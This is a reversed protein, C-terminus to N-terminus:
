PLGRPFGPVTTWLPAQQRPTPEEEVNIRELEPLLRMAVDLNYKADWFGSDLALAQRYAQKALALLPQADAIAMAETKVLAQELYLNGLSYRIQMQLVKDGNNIIANMAALAEEYRGQRKLQLARALKAAPPAAMIEAFSPERGQALKEIWRNAGRAQNLTWGQALFAGASMLLVCWAMTTKNM